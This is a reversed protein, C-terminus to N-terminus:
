LFQNKFFALFTHFISYSKSSVTVPQITWGHTITPADFARKCISRKAPFRRPRWSVPIHYGVPQFVKLPASRGGHSSTRLKPWPEHIRSGNFWRRWRSSTFMMITRWCKTSGTCSLTWINPITKWGPPMSTCVWHLVIRITIGISITTWSTISSIVPFFTRALTLWLAALCINTMPQIRVVIWSTWSWKGSPTPVPRAHNFIETAVIRCRSTCPTRGYHHIQYHRRLPPITSSPKNKWWPSNITVALAYIRHESESWQTTQSTPTSKPLLEWAPWKRPGIMLPPM